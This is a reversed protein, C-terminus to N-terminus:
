AAVASETPASIAIDVKIAEGAFKRGESKAIKVNKFVMADDLEHTWDTSPKFSAYEGKGVGRALYRPKGKGYLRYVWHAM